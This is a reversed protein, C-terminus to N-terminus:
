IEPVGSYYGGPQMSPNSYNVTTQVGHSSGTRITTPPPSAPFTSPDSPDYLRPQVMQPAFPTTDTYVASPSAPSTPAAAFQGSPPTQSRKKRKVFFVVAGAILALGVVGGVVGGVIAATDSSSGSSATDTGTPTSASAATSTPNVSGTSQPNSGISEPNDGVSQALTVNFLDSTTVDQYAWQPVATGAPVGPPFVGPYITTCNTDWVTWSIITRNQCLGCASVTSYTVSSCQCPNSEDAYPGTYHTGNPLPDVTFQGDNCAGQLYAAVVCPNQGKSNSMWDFSSLCSATSTQALIGVPGVSLLGAALIALSSRHLGISPAM